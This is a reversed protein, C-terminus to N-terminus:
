VGPLLSVVFNYLALLSRGFAGLGVLAGLVVLVLILSTEVLSQGKRTGLMGQPRHGM